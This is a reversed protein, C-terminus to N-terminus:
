LCYPPFLICLGFQSVSSWTILFSASSLNWLLKNWLRPHAKSFLQALSWSGLIEKWWSHYSPVLVHQEQLESVRMFSLVKLPTCPCPKHLWCPSSLVKCLSQSVWCTGEGVGTSLGDDSPFQHTQECNHPWPWMHFMVSAARLHFTCILRFNSFESNHKRIIGSHPLDQPPPPTTEQKSKKKDRPDRIEAPQCMWSLVASDFCCVSTRGVSRGSVGAMRKGSQLWISEANEECILLFIHACTWQLIQVALLEVHFYKIKRKM